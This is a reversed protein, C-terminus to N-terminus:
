PSPTGVDDESRGALVVVIEDGANDEQNRLEGELEDGIDGEIETLAGNWKAGAHIRKQSQCHTTM